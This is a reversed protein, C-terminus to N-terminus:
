KGFLGKVLNGVGEVVGRVSVGLSEALGSALRTALSENLSFSPDDLRGDLAFKVQIRGDRSMAALVAQRPVGAFTSLLGSSSNLELGTLTVEGPAHLQMKAVTAQVSLDLQGRRIGGESLKLLYPQLVIMDIGHFQAALKADRTSPTLQGHIAIRGDHQVGKLVGSLDIDIAQDLGPLALPGARADLQALQLRHPTATKLSGDFFDIAANDLHIAGITLTTDSAKTGANAPAQTSASPTELLSPLLRLKGERTRLMSLYGDHVTISAVRWPAHAGPSWLNRLDPRVTVRAARLEDQAPWGKLGPAAIRLDRLEIGAWGLDITGVSARPGLAAVIRSQLLRSSMQLGMWATLLLLATGGAIWVWRSSKMPSKVHM